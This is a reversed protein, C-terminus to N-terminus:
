YIYVRYSAFKPKGSSFPRVKSIADALSATEKKLDADVEVKAMNNFNFLDARELIDKIFWNQLGVVMPVKGPSERGGGALVEVQPQQGEGRKLGSM